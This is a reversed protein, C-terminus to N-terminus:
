LTDSWITSTATVGNFKVTSTGRSNGFGTGSINVATGTTGRDPTLSQITLTNWLAFDSAGNYM